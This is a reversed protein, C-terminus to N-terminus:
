APCTERLPKNAATAPQWNSPLLVTLDHQNTMAPLRELVDTLWAEPNHGHRKACEVMTYIIAARQGTTESGVFLWNKKKGRGGFSHTSVPAQDGRLPPLRKFTTWLLGIRSHTELEDSFRVTTSL